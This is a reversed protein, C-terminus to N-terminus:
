SFELTYGIYMSQSSTKTVTASLLKSTTVIFDPTLDAICRAYTYVPASTYYYVTYYYGNYKFLGMNGTSSTIFCSGKYYYDFSNNLKDSTNLESVTHAGTTKNFAFIQSSTASYAYIYNGSTYAYKIVTLGYATAATTSSIQTGSDVTATSATYVYLWMGYYGSTNTFGYMHINDSSDIYGVTGYSMRAYPTSITTNSVLTLTSINIKHVYKTTTSGSVLYVINSNATSHYLDYYTSSTFTPSSTTITYDTQVLGSATLAIRRLNCSTTSISTVMWLDDSHGGCYTSAFTVSPAVKFYLDRGSAISPIHYGNRLHAATTLIKSFTGNGNASSWDWRKYISHNTAYWESVTPVGYITGSTVSITDYGYALINGDIGVLPDIVGSALTGNTLMVKNFPVQNNQYDGNNFLPPPTGVSSINQAISKIAANRLFSYFAEHVTNEECVRQHIRGTLDNKTVIEFKGRVSMEGLALKEVINGM